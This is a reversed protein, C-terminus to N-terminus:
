RELLVIRELAHQLNGQLDSIRADTPGALTSTIGNVQQQLNEVRNLALSLRGGEAVTEEVRGGLFQMQNELGGVQGRVQQTVAQQAGIEGQVQVFRSGTRGTEALIGSMGGVGQMGGAPSGRDLALQVGLADRAVGLIGVQEQPRGVLDDGSLVNILVNINRDRELLGRGDLYHNFYEPMRGGLIAPPQDLLGRLRDRADQLIGDVAPMFGQDVWSWVWDRFTLQISSFGRGHDPTRPDGDPKLFAFLTIPHDTFSQGWTARQIDVPHRHGYVYAGDLYNRVAGGGSGTYEANLMTWAGRQQAQVPTNSQLIAEELTEGGPLRAQMTTLMRNEDALSIGASTEGRVLVRAEGDRNVQVSLSRGGVGASAQFGTAPLLRGWTAVFDVWPRPESTGYSIRNGQLDRVIATLTAQSGVAHTLSSTSLTLQFYQDLTGRVQDLGDRVEQVQDGLLEVEGRLGNVEVQLAEVVSLDAKEVQLREVEQGLRVVEHVMAMWDASLILEGSNKIGGLEEVTAM